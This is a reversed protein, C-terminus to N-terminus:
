ARTRRRRYKEIVDTVIQPVNPPLLMDGNAARVVSDDNHRNFYLHAALKTAAMTVDSPRNATTCYGLTGVVEIASQRSGSSNAAWSLGSTNLLEVAYKPSFNLPLLRFQDSTITGNTGNVIYDVAIWDQDLYLKRGEISPYSADYIESDVTGNFYRNNCLTQIAQSAQTVYDQIIDDDGTGLTGDPGAIQRRVAALTTIDIADATM